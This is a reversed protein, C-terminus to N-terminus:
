RDAGAARAEPRTPEGAPTDPVTSPDRPRGGAGPAQPELQGESRAVEAVEFMPLDLTKGLKDWRMLDAPRYTSGTPKGDPGVEPVPQAMGQQFLKALTEQQERKFAKGRVKPVPGPLKNMKHVMPLLSRNLEEVPLNSVHELVRLQTKESIRADQGKVGGYGSAVGIGPLCLTSLFQKEELYSLLKLWTDSRDPNALQQIDVLKEGDMGMPVAVSDGNGAVDLAEAVLETLDVFTPNGGSDVEGTPIQVNQAMALRVPDVSREYYRMTWVLLVSHAWWYPYVTLAQGEGYHNNQYGEWTLKFSRDLGFEQGEIDLGAFRRTVDDERALALFPDVDSATSPVFEGEETVSWDIVFPQWGFWVANPGGRIISPMIADIWDQHFKEIRPDAGEVVYQRENLAAGLLIMALRPMVSRRMLIQLLPEVYLPNFQGIERLFGNFGFPDLRAGLSGYGGGALMGYSQFLKSPSAQRRFPTLLGAAKKASSRAYSGLDIALKAVRRATPRGVM